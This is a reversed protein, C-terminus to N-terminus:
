FPLDDCDNPLEPTKVVKKVQERENLSAQIRLLLRKLEADDMSDFDKKTEGKEVDKWTICKAQKIGDGELVKQLPVNFYKQFQEGNPSIVWNEDVRSVNVLKADVLTQIELEVEEVEMKCAKAFQNAFYKVSEGWGCIWLLVKLTKPQLAVVLQQSPYFRKRNEM